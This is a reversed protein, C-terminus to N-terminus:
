TEQEARHRREERLLRDFARAYRDPPRIKRAGPLTAPDTDGFLVDAGPLNLIELAARLVEHAEAAGEALLASLAEEAAPGADAAAVVDAIRAAPLGRPPVSGDHPTWILWRVSRPRRRPHLTIVAQRGVHFFGLSPRMRWGVPRGALTRVADDYPPRAQVNGAPVILTWGELPALLLPGLGRRAWWAAADPRGPSLM